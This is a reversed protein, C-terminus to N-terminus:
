VAPEEDAPPDVQVAQWDAETPYRTLWGALDVARFSGREPNGAAQVADFFAVLELGQLTRQFGTLYPSRAFTEGDFIGYWGTLKIGAGPTILVEYVDVDSAGHFLQALTIIFRM